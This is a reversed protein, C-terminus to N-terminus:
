VFWSKIRSWSHPSVDKDQLRPARLMPVAVGDTIDIVLNAFVGPVGIVLPVIFASKEDSNDENMDAPVAQAAVATALMAILALFVITTLHNKM